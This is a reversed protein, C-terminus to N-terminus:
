PRAAGSRSRSRPERRLPFSGSQADRARRSPRRRSVFVGCWLGALPGMGSIVGLAMTTPVCSAVLTVGAKLDAWLTKRACPPRWENRLGHLMNPVRGHDAEPVRTELLAEQFDVVPGFARHPRGNGRGPM